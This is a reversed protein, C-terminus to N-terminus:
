EVRFHDWGGSRVQMPQGSDDLVTIGQNREVVEGIVTLPTDMAQLACRMVDAPAAILLEYDEGGGLALDLWSAPFTSILREDAPICSALVQAGVGSARCLKGLDDMLGDSIDMACRVGLGTLALGEAVRPMPRNHAASLYAYTALCGPDAGEMLLKLGAASAGLTGTVAIRDGPKANDRLLLEDADGSQSVGELAVSLFFAPSKVIDGGVVIGGCIATLDMMGRYMELLGSIPIDGRLGLTITACSPVCGMAAIDSINTALCKWGLDRWGTYRLDFHVGEVMTDTTFVTVGAPHRWAAADDGISRLAEFGTAGLERMRNENDEAIAAALRNIIEFEGLDRALM